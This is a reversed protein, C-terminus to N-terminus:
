DRTLTVTANTLTYRLGTPITISKLALDLDTHTFSGSFIMTEDIGNRDVTIAYQRELENLVFKLPTSAFASENTMWSPQTKTEKENAILKGDMITFREGANLKTEKTNFNVAVLGEFCTVEFYHDRQKVNFQTGLVRIVGANTKVDFTAGKAVKFYAEGQLTVERSDDWSSKNFSLESSANLAVTSADPLDIHITQAIDTKFESDLTTTYFYVSFGILLIAAIRLLPKLISKAKQQPLKAKLQELETETDFHPAKFGELHNSLKLLDDYDELAEFAKQEEPNLNHDLWKKILDDRNM